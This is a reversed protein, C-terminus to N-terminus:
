DPFAGPYEEDLYEEWGKDSVRGRSGGRFFLGLTKRQTVESPKKWKIM